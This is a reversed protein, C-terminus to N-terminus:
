LPIQNYQREELVCYVKLFLINQYSVYNKKTLIYHYQPAQYFYKLMGETTFNCPVLNVSSMINVDKISSPRFLILCLWQSNQLNLNTETNKLFSWIAIYPRLSYYPLCSLQRKVLNEYVKLRDVWQSQRVFFETIAGRFYKVPPISIFKRHSLLLCSLFNHFYRPYLKFRTCDM